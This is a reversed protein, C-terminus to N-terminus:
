GEYMVAEARWSLAGPDFRLQYTDHADTTVSFLHIQRRGEREAWQANVRAIRHTRGGLRLLLPVLRGGDFDARVKVPEDLREWHM